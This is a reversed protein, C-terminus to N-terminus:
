KDIEFKNGKYRICLMKETQKNKMILYHHDIDMTVFLLSGMDIMVKLIDVIQKESAEFNSIDGLYLKIDQNFMRSSKEFFKGFGTPISNFNHKFRGGKKKSQKKTM